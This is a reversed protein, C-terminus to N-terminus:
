RWFVYGLFSEPKMRVKFDFRRGQLRFSAAHHLLKFEAAPRKMM